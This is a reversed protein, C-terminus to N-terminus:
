CVSPLPRRHLADAHESRRLRTLARQGGGGVIGPAAAFIVPSLFLDNFFETSDEFRDLVVFMTETLERTAREAEGSLFCCIARLYGAAFRSREVELSRRLGSCGLDRDCPCLEGASASERDRRNKSCFAQPTGVRATAPFSSFRKSLNKIRAILTAAFVEFHGRAAHFRARLDTSLGSESTMLAQAKREAGAPHRVVEDWQCLKFLLHLHANLLGDRDDIRRFFEIADELVARVVRDDATQAKLRLLLAYAGPDRDIDLQTRSRSRGNSRRLSTHALFGCDEYAAQLGPAALASAAHDKRDILGPEARCSRQRLGSPARAFSRYKAM